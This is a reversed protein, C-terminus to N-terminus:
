FTQKTTLPLKREHAAGVVIELSAILDGGEDHFTHTGSQISRIMWNEYDNAFAHLVESLEFTEEQAPELTIKIQM